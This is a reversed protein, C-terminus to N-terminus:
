RRARVRVECLVAASGDPVHVIWVVVYRGPRRAVAFTTRGSLPRGAAVTAFPGDPRDGLRIAARAGPSAADVVVREVRLRRGMDIVLGVGNKFFSSYRETRWTTDRRGDVALPAEEDRERGDGEPDLAGVATLRVFPAAPKATPAPPTTPQPPASSGTTVPPAAVDADDLGRSVVLWLGLFLAALGAAVALRKRDTTKPSMVSDLRRAYGRPTLKTVASAAATPRSMPTGSTIMPSAAAPGTPHTTEAITSGM